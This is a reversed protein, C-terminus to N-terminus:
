AYGSEGCERCINWKVGDSDVYLDSTFTLTACSVCLWLDTEPDYVLDPDM